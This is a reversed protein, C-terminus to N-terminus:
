RGLSGHRERILNEIFINIIDSVRAPLSQKVLL